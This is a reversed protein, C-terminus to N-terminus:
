QYQDTQLDFILNRGTDTHLHMLDDNVATITLASTGDPAAYSGILHLNETYLRLAGQGTSGDPNVSAGAYVLVWTSGVSGQWGNHVVFQSSPFPGEHTMVIEAMPKMTPQTTPVYDPQKPPGHKEAETMEQDLRVLLKTEAAPYGPYGSGGTQQTLQIAHVTGVGILALLVVIIAAVAWKKGIQRRSRRNM